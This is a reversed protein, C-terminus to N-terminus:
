AEAGRGRKACTRGPILRTALCIDKSETSLLQEAAVEGIRRAPVEVTTLPPCILDAWPVHDFGCVGLDEPVALRLDEAARIVGMAILDNGAAIADVKHQELIVRAETYGSEYTFQGHRIAVLEADVDQLAKHFGALRDCATSVERPGAVYAIRRYGLALLYNALELSGSVNDVGVSPLGAVRRDAVVIRVGAGVLRQIMRVDPQAVPIFVIGEVRESLLVSLYRSEKEVSHNSDCILTTYGVQFAKSVVGRALLSFFPNSIDPVLIAFAQTRQRRLARAAKAPTYQLEEIAALVRAKTRPTMHAADSGNLVRSVTSLSVKALAAVERITPQRPM